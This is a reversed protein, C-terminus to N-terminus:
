EYPALSRLKHDHRRNRPDVHTHPTSAKVHMQSLQRGLEAARIRISRWAELMPVVVPALERQLGITANRRSPLIRLVSNPCLM